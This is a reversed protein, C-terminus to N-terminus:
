FYTYVQCYVLSSTLFFFDKCVYCLSCELMDSDLVWFHVSCFYNQSEDDTVILTVTTATFIYKIM